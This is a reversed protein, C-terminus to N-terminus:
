GLYPMTVYRDEYNKLDNIDVRFLSGVKIAKLKGGNILRRVTRESVKLYSGVETVTLYKRETM